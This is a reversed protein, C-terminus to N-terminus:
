SPTDYEDTTEESRNKRRQLAFRRASDVAYILSGADVRGEGAIDYATGHDVSTRIIPLGLTVNTSEGLHFTKLPGLGQDHYMALIVDAKIRERVVMPFLTDAPYPGVAKIGYTQLERIAPEIITKEESGIVGGEGAHPNLGCLAIVPEAIGYLESIGQRLIQGMSVLREISLAGPVSALPIHVTALAVRFVEGALMMVVDDVKCERALVETHGTAPLGVSLLRAKHWPCTVIASIRDSQADSIARRLSRYQILGFDSVAQGWPYGDRGPQSDGRCDVVPIAGDGITLAADEPEVGWIRTATDESVLGRAALSAASARLWAVDGYVIVPQAASIREWHRLILEPGVGAMDGVTIGIPTELKSTSIM